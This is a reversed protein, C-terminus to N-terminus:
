FQSWVYDLYEDRDLTGIDYVKYTVQVTDWPDYNAFILFYNSTCDAIEGPVILRYITTYVAKYNIKTLKNQCLPKGLLGWYSGSIDNSPWYSMPANLDYDMPAHGPTAEQRLSFFVENPKRDLCCIRRDAQVMVDIVQGKSLYIMDSSSYDQAKGYPQTNVAGEMIPPFDGLPPKELVPPLTPGTPAPAPVSASCGCLILLFALFLVAILKWNQM